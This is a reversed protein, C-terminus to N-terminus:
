LRFQYPFCDVLFIPSMHRLFFFCFCSVIFSLTAMVRPLWALVRQMKRTKAGAYGKGECGCIYSQLQALECNQSDKRVDVRDFFSQVRWCPITENSALNFLPVHRDRHVLDAENQCFNCRDAPDEVGFEFGTLSEGCLKCNQGFEITAACSQACSEVDNQVRPKAEAPFFCDVPDDPCYDCWIGEESNEVFACYQGEYRGICPITTSCVQDVWCTNFDADTISITTLGDIANIALSDSLDRGQEFPITLVPIDVQADLFSDYPLDDPYDLRGSKQFILLAIGGSKQCKYALDRPFSDLVYDNVLCIANTADVPCTEYQDLVIDSCDVLPGTVTGPPRNQETSGLAYATVVVGDVTVEGWKLFHCNLDCQLCSETSRTDNFPNDLCEHPDSPCSQCTGFEAEEGDEAFEFTCFLGLGCVDRSSCAGGLEVYEVCLDLCSSVGATTLGMDVCDWRSEPCKQYVGLKDPDPVGRITPSLVIGPHDKFAQKNEEPDRFNCFHDYPPYYDTGDCLHYPHVGNTANKLTLAITVKVTLTIDEQPEEGEGDGALASSDSGFGLGLGLFDDDSAADADATTPANTPASSTTEEDGGGSLTSSDSGFGLGLGLFDDDSTEAADGETTAAEAAPPAVCRLSSGAACVLDGCCSAPRDANEAGCSRSREGEAACLEETQARRVVRNSGGGGIANRPADRGPSRRVGPSVIGPGAVAGPGDTTAASAIAAATALLLSMTLRMVGGGAAEGPCPRLRLVIM